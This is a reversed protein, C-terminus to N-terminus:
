SYQEALRAVFEDLFVRNNASIGKIRTNLWNYGFLSPIAVSLGAVTAALAAATGPAIANVNVDGSAAIAAFTIMVGIVTGLLGLFPGGSIAITLLVMQASLQQQLRTQTADMAARIAEISQASLVMARQAGAAQGAIRKNLEQVGLHYLRYLTSAGYRGHHTVLAAIGPSSEDLDDEGNGTTLAGADAGALGHYDKLFRGNAREVQSLYIAKLVMIGLAIVLMSLCIVIVVWGDLTLNRAVTLFYSGQGGSSAKQGDVGYVVLPASSGESRAVAKIWDPSRVSKSVAVEDVDGSLYHAAQASGGVTLAGGIEQLRVAAQGAAVGDVYLILQGGGATLALHHWDGSSLESGTQTVTVPASGDTYRAFAHMGDIGLVLERGQDALAVLYAQQQAGAVRVWASATIGQGPLLRLSPSAPVTISQGGDFHAGGAILSAPVLTATSASPNNRYATVDQPLGQSQGFELVLAQDADFTGAPDSASSADSNGYYLFFKDTKLGGTLRPVEVWIFALQNQADFREIHFKLPTKDDGDIARFDAGDAKVDNFYNFNGLSLRVLVPVNQVTGPVDAAAPSLDLDIEKRYKWDGNWWSGASASWASLPLLCLLALLGFRRFKLVFGKERLGVATAPPDGDQRPIFHLGAALKGM